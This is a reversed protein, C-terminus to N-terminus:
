VLFISWWHFLGGLTDTFWGNQYIMVGEGVGDVKEAIFSIDL